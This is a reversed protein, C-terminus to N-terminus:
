ANALPFDLSTTFGTVYANGATDVAIGSGEEAGSGGLYTSYVLATGAANIKSVFATVFGPSTKNTPDFPNVTPFDGSVTSGTIYAEGSADVAIALGTDGASSGGLYTSYTLVPDIILPRSHDYPGLAFRVQNEADLVFRGERFQRNEIKSQRNGSPRSEFRLDGIEGNAESKPGRVDAEVQYVIPKQFRVAGGGTSIVLDGNAAIKAGSNRTATIKSEAAQSADIKSSSDRTATMQSRSNQIKFQRSGGTEQKSGIQGYVGLDLAIASPDAGPAVVFDYELQGGQNGYYVLDVGPYVGQYKVKAYTPVNTRWKQPDNGIFYNSKGPLEDAGMVAARPNAGALQMRLVASSNGGEMWPRASPPVPGTTLSRSDNGDGNPLNLASALRPDQLAQAGSIPARGVNASALGRPLNRDSAKRLSVVAENGTLFLSYGRGRSLFKVRGDTQGQNLEFSLPLKGYTSLADSEQRVGQARSVTVIAKAAPEPRATTLKTRFLVAGALFMLVAVACAYVRRM